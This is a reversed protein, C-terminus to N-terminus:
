CADLVALIGGARTFDVTEVHEWRGRSTGSTRFRQCSIRVSHFFLNLSASFTTCFPEAAERWRARCTRAPVGTHEQRPGSFNRCM